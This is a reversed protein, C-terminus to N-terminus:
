PCTFSIRVLSYKSWDSTDYKNSPTHNLRGYWVKLTHKAEADIFEETSNIVVPADCAPGDACNGWHHAHAM